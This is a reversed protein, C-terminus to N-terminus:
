GAGKESLVAPVTQFLIKLDLWISKKEIYEMDLCVMDDFTTECRGSVQWLGTIGPIAALRRMDEKDYMEVEYPIPPRPGVLSMDGILVNWLQPLEDLSSKRLFKGVRTVRPDGSLKYSSASKLGPELNAMEEEDGAIYAQMYKQHLAADVDSRMTRFKFFRFTEIVWQQRGNVLKRKAGVREQTFLAGGPSDLIIAMAIIGLVPALVILASVTIVLDLARKMTYYSARERDAQGLLAKATIWQEGRGLSEQM